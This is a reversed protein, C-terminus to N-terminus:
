SQIFSLSNRCHFVYRIVSTKRGLPHPFTSVKKQSKPDEGAAGTGSRYCVPGSSATGRCSFFGCRRPWGSVGIVLAFISIHDEANDM